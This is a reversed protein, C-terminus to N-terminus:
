FIYSKYPNAQTHEWCHIKVCKTGVRDWYLAYEHKVHVVSTHCLDCLVVSNGALLNFMECDSSFICSQSSMLHLHVQEHICLSLLPSGQINICSFKNTSAHFGRPVATSNCGCGMGLLRWADLADAGWVWTEMCGGCRCRTMCLLRWATVANAGWVWPDGHMWTSCADVGWVWPDGHMWQMRVGYGTTKMCLHLAHM